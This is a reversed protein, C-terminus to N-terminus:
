AQQAPVASLLAAVACWVQNVSLNQLPERRLIKVDGLPRWHEPDTPGFLVLGRAGSGAALHAVGSDNAVFYQALRALAALEGLDLDDFLVVSPTTRALRAFTGTLATEAPGFVVVVPTQAAAREALVAFKDPPWNKRVSGSGPLILLFGGAKLGLRGLRQEARALDDPLLDIPNLLPQAAPAGVARLYCEAVHGHGPPRFQYFGVDGGAVRRLSLRFREDEAAFFCEIRSFQGFFARAGLSDGGSDTFLLGIEPRDLSHARTIPMRKVAFRALDARAMLEFNIQPYLRELAKITPLLCLLDGLAGPFIILGLKKANIGL